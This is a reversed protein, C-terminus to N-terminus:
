TNAHDEAIWKVKAVEGRQWNDRGRPAHGGKSTLKKKQVRAV